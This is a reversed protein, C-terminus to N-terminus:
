AGTVCTVLTSGYAQDKKAESHQWQVQEAWQMNDVHKLQEKDASQTVLSNVNSLKWAMGTVETVDNMIKLKGTATHVCVGGGSAHLCAPPPTGAVQITVM